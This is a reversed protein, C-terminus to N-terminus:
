TAGARLLALLGDPYIIKADEGEFCELPMWTATFAGVDANADVEYGDLTSRAYVTPDQFGADYVQVIEHGPRGDCTFINELAGLYELGMIEEGLEERVERALAEDSTEGFEIAGGIPRYFTERKVRDVGEAVLVGREHRFVGIVIPRIWAWSPLESM